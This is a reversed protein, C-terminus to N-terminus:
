LGLIALVPLSEKEYCLDSAAVNAGLKMEIVDHESLQNLKDALDIVSFTKSIVGCNYQKVIPSMDPSPGVVVALRGQIFEFFKNPLCRTLNFTNPELYCLGMDYRNLMPVIEHFPVPDLFRIKSNELAKVRLEEIYDTAGTLYIDLEFRKDLMRMLEIMSELRRDRNAVGHHVLRIRGDNMPSPTLDHFNPTSRLIVPAVGFDEQYRQALGDSVTLVADCRKFYKSCIGVRMPKETLRWFASHGLEEPYFERADMMIRANGKIQFALPLFYIDEVIIWDYHSGKLTRALGAFGWRLNSLISLFKESGFLLGLFGVFKRVIKHVMLLSPRRIEYHVDIDMPRELSFSAVEVHCGKKKLLEIIRRPRPNGSPDVLATVLLKRTAQITM